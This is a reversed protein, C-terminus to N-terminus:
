DFIQSLPHQSTRERAEVIELSCLSRLVSFKQLSIMEVPVNASLEFIIDMSLDFNKSSRRSIPLWFYVDKRNIQLDSSM